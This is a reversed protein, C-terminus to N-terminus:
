VQIKIDLMKTQAQKYLFILGSIKDQQFKIKM